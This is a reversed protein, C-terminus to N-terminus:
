RRVRIGHEGTLADLFRPGYRVLFSFVSDVREQRQGGPYLMSAARQVRDISTRRSERIRADITAELSDIADGLLKQTKGFASDLGPLEGRASEALSGTKQEIADRLDALAREIKEPRHADTLRKEIEAGGDELERPDAEVGELWREVKPEVVLWAERSATEPRDVKLQEFLPGLQAWYAMEGPGLITRAVPLLWSELVPRTAAAPSFRAPEAELLALWEATPHVEGEKGARFGDDTRLLHSRARGDDFFLLAGGDPRRLQPEYGHSAVAATGSDFAEGSAGSQELLAALFPIAAGRAETHAPDFFVVDVGGLMTALADRFAGSMRADETYADRLAASAEEAFESTGAASLFEELLPRVRAGLRAPGVSRGAESEQPVIKMRRIAAGRDIISATGVEEWDHDDGAIWFSALAPRGTAAEIRQAHAVATLTKYLIFLPGTFLVPQQGTSVLIGEGNLIRDLKAAAARTTATFPARSVASRRGRLDVEGDPGPLRLLEAVAPLGDYVDGAV